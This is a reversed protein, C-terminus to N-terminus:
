LREKINRRNLVLQIERASKKDVNFIFNNNVKSKLFSYTAFIELSMRNNNRKIWRYDIVDDWLLVTEPVILGNEHIEKKTVSRRASDILMLIIGTLIYSSYFVSEAFDSIRLYYLSMFILISILIFRNFKIREAYIVEGLINCKKYELIAKYTILFCFIGIMVNVIM